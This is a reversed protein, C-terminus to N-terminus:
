GFSGLNQNGGRYFPSVPGDVMVATVHFVSIHIELECLKTGASTLTQNDLEHYPTQSFNM